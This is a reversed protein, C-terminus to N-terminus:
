RSAAIASKPSQSASLASYSGRRPIAALARCLEAIDSNFRTIRPLSESVASQAHEAPLEITTHAIVPIGAALADLASVPSVFGLEDSLGWRADLPHNRRTGACRIPATGVGDCDIVMADIACHLEWPEEARADLIMPAAGTAHVIWSSIAAIDPLAPSVVMRLRAGGVIAMGVARAVFRADTWEAPEGGLLVLREHDAVGFERRIRAGRSSGDTVLRSAVSIPAVSVAARPVEVECEMCGLSRMIRQARAGGAVVRHMGSWMASMGPRLQAALWWSGGVSALRHCHIERSLGYAIIRELCWEPGLVLLADDPALVAAISRWLSPGSEEAAVVFLKRCDGRTSEGAGAHTKENAGSKM